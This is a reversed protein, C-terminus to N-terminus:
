PRHRVQEPRRDSADTPRSYIPINELDATISEHRSEVIALADAIAGTDGEEAKGSGLRQKWLLSRIAAHEALWEKLDYYEEVADIFYKTVAM